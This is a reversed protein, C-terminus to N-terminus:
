ATSGPKTTAGPPTHHNLPTTRCAASATDIQGSGDCRTCLAYFGDYDEYDWTFGHGQCSSCARGETHEDDENM